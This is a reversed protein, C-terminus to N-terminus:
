KYGIVVDDFGPRPREQPTESPTGIYIFGAIRGEQLGAKQLLHTTIEADFAPWETLWNAGFGLATAAHLLNMAVCGASLEQEFVPIKGIIPASLVCLVLPARCFRQREHALQADSADEHLSAFRAATIEGLASRADGALVVIRWPALKGHDPVRIAAQLIAKRAAEDPAPAALLRVSVSRRTQLLTLAEM